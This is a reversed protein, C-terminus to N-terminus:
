EEPREKEITQIDHLLKLPWKESDRSTLPEGSYFDKYTTWDLTTPDKTFEAVRLLFDSEQKIQPNDDSALSAAQLYAIAEDIQDSDFLALAYAVQLRPESVEGHKTKYDTIIEVARQFQGLRLLLEAVQIVVVQGQAFSYANLGYCLAEDFYGRDVLASAAALSLRAVEQPKKQGDALMKEFLKDYGSLAEEVKGSSLLLALYAEQYSASNPEQRLLDRLIESAEEYRAQQMLVVALNYRIVKEKPFIALARELSFEAEIFRGRAAFALGERTLAVARIETRPVFSQDEYESAPLACGLLALTFFASIVTCGVTHRKPKM